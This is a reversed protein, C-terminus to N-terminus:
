SSVVANNTVPSSPSQLSNLAIVDDERDILAMSVSSCEEGMIMGANNLALTSTRGGIAMAGTRDCSKECSYASASNKLLHRLCTRNFIMAIFTQRYKSSLVCYTIFGVYCNILSLLDLLNGLNLYIISHVHTTYVGNLVALAGQPLETMLFVTLMVILTLTTRDYNHTRRATISSRATSCLAGGGLLLERKKRNERLKMMLAMTFWLMLFCPMAKLVVGMIWLNAKLYRCHDAKAWASLDITYYQITTITTTATSPMPVVAHVLLTPICCIAVSIVICLSILWAISSRLRENHPRRMANWRVFAMAVSLYRSHNEICL